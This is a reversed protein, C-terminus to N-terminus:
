DSDSDSSSSVNKSRKKEKKDKKKYKKNEKKHKRDKKHKKSRKPSIPMITEVEVSQEDADSLPSDPNSIESDSESGSKSECDSSSESSLDSKSHNRPKRPNILDDTLLAIDMTGISIYSARPDEFVKRNVSNNYWCKICLRLLSVVDANGVRIINPVGGTSYLTRFAAVHAPNDDLTMSMCQFVIAYSNMDDDMECLLECWSKIGFMRLLEGSTAPSANKFAHKFVRAEERSVIMSEFVNPTLWTNRITIICEGPREINSYALSFESDDEFRKVGQHSNAHVKSNDPSADRTPIKCEEKRGISDEDTDSCSRDYNSDSDLCANSECLEKLKSATLVDYFIRDPNLEFSLSKKRMYWMAIARRIHKALTQGNRLHLKKDPSIKKLTFKFLDLPYARYSTEISIHSLYQKAVTFIEITHKDSISEEYPINDDEDRVNITTTLVYTKDPSVEESTDRSM